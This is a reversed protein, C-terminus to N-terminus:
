FFLNLYNKKVYFYDQYQLMHIHISYCMSATYAWLDARLGRLIIYLVVIWYLILPLLFICFIRIDIDLYIMINFKRIDLVEGLRLYRIFAFYLVFILPYVMALAMHIYVQSHKWSNSEKSIEPLGRHINWFTLLPIVFCIHLGILFIIKHLGINFINLSLVGIIPMFLLLSPLVRDKIFTWTVEKGERKAWIIVSCNNIFKIVILGYIIIFVLLESTNEQKFSVLYYGITFYIGLGILTVMLYMIPLNIYIKFIDSVKALKLFSTLKSKVKKTFVFIFLKVKKILIMIQKKYIKSAEYCVTIM